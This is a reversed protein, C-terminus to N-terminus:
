LQFGIRFQLHPKFYLFGGYGSHYAAGGGITFECFWHKSFDRKIGYVPVLSVDFPTNPILIAGNVKVSFFDEDNLYYRPEVMVNFGQGYTYYQSRGSMDSGGGIRGILSMGGDWQHEYSYELGYLTRLSFSHTSSNQASASFAIAMFAFLSLLITKKMNM